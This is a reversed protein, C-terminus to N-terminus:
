NEDTFFQVSILLFLLFRIKKVRNQFVLSMGIPYPFGPLLYYRSPCFTEYRMSHNYKYKCLGTDRNAM